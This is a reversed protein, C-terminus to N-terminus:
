RFVLGNAVDCLQFNRLYTDFLCLKHITRSVLKMMTCLDLSEARRSVIFQYLSGESALETVFSPLQDESQKMVGFFKIVNPHHIRDANWIRCERKFYQM